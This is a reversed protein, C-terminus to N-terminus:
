SSFFVTAFAHLDSHECYFTLLKASNFIIFNPKTTLIPIDSVYVSYYWLSIGRPQQSSRFYNYVTTKKVFGTTTITNSAHKAFMWM